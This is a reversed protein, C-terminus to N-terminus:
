RTLVLCAADFLGQLILAIGTFLWIGEALVGPHALSIAGCILALGAAIAYVYWSAIGARLANFMTQAKMLGMLLQLLGFFAALVPFARLWWDNGFICFGGILVALLGSFMDHKRAAEEPDDRFYRIIYFAGTGLLVAGIAKIIGSTFEVPRILLLIGVVIEIVCLLIQWLHAKLYEM